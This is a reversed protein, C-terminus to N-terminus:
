EQPPFTSNIITNGYESKFFESIAKEGSHGFPPNGIDHALCAACVISGLNSNKVKPDDINNCVITGLSRGVSATELSHTLRTHIIDTDPFPFVQTKGNLRRFASSFVVRDFDRQFESRDLTNPSIDNKPCGLRYPMLLKEWEM